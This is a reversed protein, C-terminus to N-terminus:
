MKGKQKMFRTIIKIKYNTSNIIIIKDKNYQRRQFFM